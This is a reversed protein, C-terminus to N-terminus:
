FFLHLMIINAFRTHLPHVTTCLSLALSGATCWTAVFAFLFLGGAYLWGADASRPTAMLVLWIGPILTRDCQRKLFLHVSYTLLYPM